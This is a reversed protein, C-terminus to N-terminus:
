VGQHTRVLCRNITEVNMKLISNDYKVTFHFAIILVQLDDHALFSAGSQQRM